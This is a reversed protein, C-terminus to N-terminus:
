IMTRPIIYYAALGVVWFIMLRYLLSTTDNTMTGFKMKRVQILIILLLVVIMGTNIILETESVNLITFMIGIILVSLALYSFTSIIRDFHNKTKIRRFSIAVFVYLLAFSNFGLGLVLKGGKITFANLIIGAFSFIFLIFEIKGIKRLFVTQNEKEKKM